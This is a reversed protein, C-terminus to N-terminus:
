PPVDPDIQEGDRLVIQERKVFVRKRALWLLDVVDRLDKAFSGLRRMTRHCETM